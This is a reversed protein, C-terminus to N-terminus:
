SHLYWLNTIYEDQNQTKWPDIEYEEITMPQGSQHLFHHEATYKMMEQHANRLGEYSGKLVGLSAPNEPINILTFQPDNVEKASQVPFAIAMDTEGKQEDWSYYIVSWAGAIQLGNQQLYAWLKKGSEDYMGKDTIKSIPITKRLAIYTKPGFKTEKIDM